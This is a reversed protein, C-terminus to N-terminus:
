LIVEIMGKLVGSRDTGFTVIVYEDFDETGVLKMDLFPLGARLEKMAIRDRRQGAIFLLVCDVDNPEIIDTTFSGNLLIRRAGARVAIEVMWAVSEMQVGRLESGRGFRETIEAITAPHIGAPLVGNENFPPIM